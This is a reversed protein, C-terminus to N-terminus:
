WLRDILGPHLAIRSHEFDRRHRRARASFFGALTVKDFRDSPLPEEATGGVLVAGPLLPWGAREYFGQLERDCTFIGVDAGSERVAERAAEVLRRGHGLGRHARDTVVASLGAAAYTRGHHVIEKSLLDLSALVRDGADLLLMSLPRLAPDHVPGPAAPAGGVSPWAQEQLAAVQRRLGAPVKAEPATVIRM